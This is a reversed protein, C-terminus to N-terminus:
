GPNIDLVMHTGHATGDSIWLERGHYMDRASFYVLSGIGSLQFPKSDAKGYLIDKVQHTGATSGDSVWLEIGNGASKAPFFLRSGAAAPPANDCRTEDSMIPCRPLSIPYVVHTTRASGRSTWLATQSGDYAFFFLRSGVVTMAGAADSCYTDLAVRKVLRIGSDTGTTKWLATGFESADEADFYLKNGFGTLVFGVGDLGDSFFDYVQHTGAATGDSQWLDASGGCPAAGERMTFYMLGGASAMEAPSAWSPNGDEDLPQAIETVVSTGAPTGDSRWLLWTQDEPSSFFYYLGGMMASPEGIDAITAIARTGPITGNSKWLKSGSTFLLKGDVDTLGYGYSPGGLRKTGASTGDSKWLASGTGDDAFFFVKNDMATLQTPDSDGTANIDAVEHTGAATGDTMWLERGHAATTAAFFVRSGLVTMGAPDSSPHGAAAVPAALPLLLAVVAIPIVSLLHSGSRTSM